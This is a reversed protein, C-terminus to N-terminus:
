IHRATIRRVERNDGVASGMDRHGVKRESIHVLKVVNFADYERIGGQQDSSIVNRKSCIGVRWACHTLTHKPFRRQGVGTGCGTRGCGADGRYTGFVLDVAGAGM